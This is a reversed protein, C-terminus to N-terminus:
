LKNCDIVFTHQFPTTLNCVVNAYDPYIPDGRLSLYGHAGCVGTDICFRKKNQEVCFVGGRCEYLKHYPKILCQPDYVRVANKRREAGTIKVSKDFSFIAQAFINQVNDIKHKIEIQTGKITMVTESILSQFLLKPRLDHQGKYFDTYLEQQQGQPLSGFYGHVVEGRMRFSTSSLAEITNYCIAGKGFFAIPFKISAIRAGGYQIYIADHQGAAVTVSLDGDRYRLVPDGHESSVKTKATRGAHLLKVYQTPLPSSNAPCLMDEGRALIYNLIYFKDRASEAAADSLGAFLSNGDLNAFFKYVVAYRMDMPSLTKRDQRTSYETVVYGGPHILYQMMDLNRRAADLADKCGFIEYIHYLALDCCSNYNGNSRETWEGDPTIDFGEALYREAAPKQRQDGLIDYLFANACAVIWRHNPTHIGAILMSDKARHFFSLIKNAVPQAGALTSKIAGYYVIAFANIIFATDPASRINCDALSVLGDPFQRRQLADLALLLRELTAADGYYVSARNFYLAAIASAAYYTQIDSTDPRVDGYWPSLKDTVLLPLLKKYIKETARTLNKIDFM